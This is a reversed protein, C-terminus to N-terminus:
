GLYHHQSNVSEGEEEGEMEQDLIHEVFLTGEDAWTAFTLFKTM